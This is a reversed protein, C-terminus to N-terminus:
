RRGRGASSTSFTPSRRTPRPSCRSSAGHAAVIASTCRKTTSTTWRRAQDREWRWHLRELPERQRPDVPAKMWARLRLQRERDVPPAMAALDVFSTGLGAAEHRELVAALAEQGKSRAAAGVITFAVTSCLLVLALVILAKRLM